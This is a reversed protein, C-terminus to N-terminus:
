THSIGGPLLVLPPMVGVQTSGGLGLPRSISGRTEERSSNRFATTGQGRQWRWTNDAPAFLPCCVDTTQCQPWVEGRRNAAKWHNQERPCFASSLVSLSGYSEQIGCNRSLFCFTQVGFQSCWLKWGWWHRAATTM